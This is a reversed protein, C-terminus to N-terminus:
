TFTGIACRSSDVLSGFANGYSCSLSAPCWGCRPDATCNSCTSARTCSVIPCQQRDTIWVPPTVSSGSVQVSSANPCLRAEIWVPLGFPCGLRAVWVPM